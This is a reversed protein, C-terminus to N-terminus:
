SNVSSDLKPKKIVYKVVGSIVYKDDPHIIIPPYNETSESLLNIQNNEKDFYYRKINAVDDIVSLVYDGNVPKKNEGDIIIYDGDEIKFKDKVKAKNMSSGKVRVAFINKIQDIFRKSIRLYGEINEDAFITAEGCNASGLIPVNVLGSKEYGLKKVERIKGTKNIRILEKKKLQDLHHRIKQPHEESILRGIERLSLRNIEIKSNILKLLKLQIPHIKM